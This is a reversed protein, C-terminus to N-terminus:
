CILSQGEENGTGKKHLGYQCKKRMGSPDRLSGLAGGSVGSQPRQLYRVYLLATLSKNSNNESQVKCRRHM